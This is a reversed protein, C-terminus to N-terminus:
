YGRYLRPYQNNIIVARVGRLIQELVAVPRHPMKRVIDATDGFAIMVLSVTLQIGGNGGTGRGGAQEVCTFIIVARGLM